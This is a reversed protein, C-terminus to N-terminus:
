CRGIWNMIVKSVLGLITSAWNVSMKNYWWTLIQPWWYNYSYCGCFTFNNPLWLEGVWSNQMAVSIRESGGLLEWVPQICFQTSRLHESHVKLHEKVSRFYGFLICSYELSYSTMTLISSFWSKFNPFNRLQQCYSVRRWPSEPAGPRWVRQFPSVIYQRYQITCYSLRIGCSCM